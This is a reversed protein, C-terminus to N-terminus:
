KKINSKKIYNNKPPSYHYNNKQTIKQISKHLNAQNNNVTNNTNKKKEALEAFIDKLIDAKKQLENTPLTNQVQTLKNIEQKNQVTETRLNTKPVYTNNSPYM